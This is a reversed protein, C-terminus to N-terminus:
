ENWEELEPGTLVKALCGILLDTKGITEESRRILRQTRALIERAQATSIYSRIIQRHTSYLLARVADDNM